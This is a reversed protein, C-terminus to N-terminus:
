HKFEDSLWIEAIAAQIMPASNRGATAEDIAQKLKAMAEEKHYHTATNAAHNNRLTSAHVSPNFHKYEEMAQQLLPVPTPSKEAQHLTDIVAALKDSEALSHSAVGALIFFALSLVLALRKM